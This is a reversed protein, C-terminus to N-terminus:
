VRKNQEALWTDVLVVVLFFSLNMTLSYQQFILHNEFVHNKLFGPCQFLILVEEVQYLLAVGIEM